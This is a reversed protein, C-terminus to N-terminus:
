AFAWRIYSSRATRKCCRADHLRPCTEVMDRLEETVVHQHVGGSSGANPTGTEGVETSLMREQFLRLAPSGLFFSSPPLRRGTKELLGSRGTKRLPNRAARREGLDITVKSHCCCRGPWRLAVCYDRAQAGRGSILGRRRCRAGGAEPDREALRASAARRGATRPRIFYDGGPWAEQRGKPGIPRGSVLPPGPPPRRHRQGDRAAPGPKIPALSGANNPWKPASCPGNPGFLGANLGV